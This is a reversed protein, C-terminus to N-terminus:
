MGSKTKKGPTRRPNALVLARLTKRQSTGPVPARTTEPLM